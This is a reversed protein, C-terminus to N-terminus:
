TARPSDRPDPQGDLTNRRIYFGGQDQPSRATHVKIVLNGSHRFEDQEMITRLVQFLLPWNTDTHQIVPDDIRISRGRQGPVTAHARWTDEAKDYDVTLVATEPLALTMMKLIRDQHEKPMEPRPATM